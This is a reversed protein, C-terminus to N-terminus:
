RGHELVEEILTELHVYLFTGISGSEELYTLQNQMFLAINHSYM